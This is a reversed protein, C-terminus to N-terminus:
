RRVHADYNVRASVEPTHCFVATHEARKLSRCTKPLAPTNKKEKKRGRLCHIFHGGLRRGILPRPQCRLFAPVCRADDQEMCVCLREFVENTIKNGESGETVSM